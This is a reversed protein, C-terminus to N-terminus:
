TPQTQCSTKKDQGIVITQGTHDKVWDLATEFSMYFGQFMGYVQCDFENNDECLIRIPCIDCANDIELVDQLPPFRYEDIRKLIFGNTLTVRDM